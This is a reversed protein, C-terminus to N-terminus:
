NIVVTMYLKEAFGVLTVSDTIAISRKDDGQAVIVDESKFEDIAGMAQLENHHSVIDGWLSVRGSDNNKIKGIYKKSFISGIDIAIQDVVRITQNEAFAEGKHEAFTKFTNIDRLTYVENNQKHLIFKGEFLSDALQTQTYNTDVEFEGDYKRNTNSKNIPCGATMGTVWYVLSSELDGAVKNEVSIVGEFNIDPRKYVVTQFKAGVEERLRKTFAIFLDQIEKETSLCGLTNFSYSEIKDLFDQYEGGTVTGNTGGTLPMGATLELTASDIWDVFDNNKLESMSAVTQTNVRTNDLLTTVDFKAVDDINTAVVIKIDNGRVGSYKATAMENKAKEGKNLRYLYTTKVNNFLERLGILKEHTLDYGFINISEKQLRDTKVEFIEGEVGWDLTVPIAAVGRESLMSPARTASIVSMYFGPLVKDQATFTGGGLAM